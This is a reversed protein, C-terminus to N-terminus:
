MDLEHIGTIRCVVFSMLMCVTSLSGGLKVYLFFGFVHEAPSRFWKFIFVLKPVLGFNSLDLWKEGEEEEEEENELDCRSNESDFEIENYICTNLSQM